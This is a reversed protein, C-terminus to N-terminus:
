KEEHEEDISHHPLITINSNKQSEEILSQYSVQPIFNSHKVRYPNKIIKVKGKPLHNGHYISSIAEAIESPTANNTYIIHSALTLNSPSDIFENNVEVQNPDVKLRQTLRSILPLRKNKNALYDRHEMRKQLLKKTKEKNEYPLILFVFDKNSFAEQISKLM